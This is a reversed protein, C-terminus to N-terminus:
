ANDVDNYIKHWDEFKRALILLHKFGNNEVYECRAIEFGSKDIMAMMQKDNLNSYHYLENVWQPDQNPMIIVLRGNENLRENFETLVIFPAIAHEFTHSCFILDFREKMDLFHMDLYRADLGKKRCEEIDKRSLTVGTVDYGKDKFYEMVCGDGCGVELIKLKSKDNDLMEEVIKKSFRMSESSLITGHSRKVGLVSYERFDRRLNM